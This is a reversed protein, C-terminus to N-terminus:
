IALVRYLFTVTKGRTCADKPAFTNGTTGAAIGHAAAWLVPGTYYKGDPVDIFPNDQKGVDPSDAFRYLFTVIEARTCIRDPSFTNESSGATIGHEVAWLVAETYYTGEPVDVFPNMRTAPTPCGAARWLFTVAQARTAGSNPSFTTVGTGATIQPDHRYAWLVADFCAEDAAVDTFPNAPKDPENQLERLMLLSSEIDVIGYGYAADWGPEGADAAGRQLLDSITDASLTHDASMLDAAAATVLPVAFSTGSATTYGGSSHTTLVDVGPATLFVTDNRNSKSYVLGADDVAGVGLVGDFGAPYYVAANGNNGVAAVILVGRSQAYSIAEQLAEYNRSVGLSLNLIDCNYDDVGGYIARCIASVKVAKGDTCKLPILTAGPAAGVNFEANHGAILGAVKTGHGYNDSTDSSVGTDSIYCAGLELHDTLDNHPNIGSDIVGIRVGQGICGAQLASDAHIMELAWGKVASRVPLQSETPDELPLEDDPEYWVISQQALLTELEQGNVVHFPQEDTPEKFKVLYREEAHQEMAACTGSFTCCLVVFALLFGILRKM